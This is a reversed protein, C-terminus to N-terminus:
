FKINPVAPAKKKVTRIPTPVTAPAKTTASASPKTTPEATVIPATTQASPPAPTTTVTPATKDPLVDQNGASPGTVSLLARFVFFVIIMGIVGGAAYWKVLGVALLGKGKGTDVKERPAVVHPAPEPSPTEPQSPRVGAFTSPDPPQVTLLRRMKPALWETQLSMGSIDQQIGREVAWNALAVGMDRMTQFRANVEKALGREIIAWLAPDGVGHAHIPMPSNGVISAILANYNPGNFPRWGTITEYLLVSFTWVDTRHDINEEGRAQQPSMYDPSGLVEGAVTVHREVDDRLVRAIGFDLIKPVIKSSEDTALLINDPKLDRHVIGKTHAAFLAAAVPLLTQIAIAPDIRQKRKLVAALSEGSLLEMVLYPDGLETQGFDFVRVINPHGLKAAARAETLLRAAAEETARDRRILKLAIDADLDLNRAVWVAGMGGQGIVRELRYKGGIVDSPVYNIPGTTSALSSHGSPEPDFYPAFAEPSSVRDVGPVQVAPMGPSSRRAGEMGGPVQVAPMGPSSRRAGEMGGPIQVAPMGQSTRRIAEASAVSLAPLGSSSRRPDVGRPVVAPMGSSSRREMGPGQPMMPVPMAGSPRKFSPAPPLAPVSAVLSPPNPTAPPPPGMPPAVPLAPMAALLPALPATQTTPEATAGALTEGLADVSPPPADDANTLPLTQNMAPAAKFPAPPNEAAKVISSVPANMMGSTSTKVITKVAPTSSSSAPRPPIPPPVSARLAPRPPAQPPPTQRSATPIEAPMPLTGTARLWREDHKTTADERTPENTGVSALTSAQEVDRGQEAPTDARSPM